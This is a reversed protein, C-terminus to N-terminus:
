SAVVTRQMRRPGRSLLTNIERFQQALSPRLYARMPIFVAKPLVYMLDWRKKRRDSKGAGIMRVLLPPKSGRRILHLDTFELPSKAAKADKHIPIALAGGSKAHIWGGREQIQGYKKDTGVRTVTWEGRRYVRYGISGSLGSAGHSTKFGALGGPRINRKVQRQVTLGVAKHNQMIQRDIARLVEPINSVFRVTPM